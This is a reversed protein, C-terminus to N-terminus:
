PSEERPLAERPQGEPPMEERLLSLLGVLGTVNHQVYDIRVDSRDARSRFGGMARAPNPLYFSNAPRYQQNLQFKVSALTVRRILELQEADKADRAMRWAATLGESRAGAPTVPPLSGPSAPGGVMDPPAGEEARLQSLYSVRVLEYVYDKLRADKVFPYLEALGQTLWADPPVYLEIGGWRWRKLALYEAAKKATELVEPQPSLQHLRVLGLLAEGPYYISKEASIKMGPKWAFWSELYGDERQQSRIFRAMAAMLATDKGDHLAKEREVLALLGLGVAGLKAQKGELLYVRLAGEAESGEVPRSQQRLWETAREAAELFTPDPIVRYIQYLSYTTGAHRLLNYDKDCTDREAFYTYCYRGDELVMRSLYAGARQLSQELVTPTIAQKMLVNGRYLPLAGPEDESGEVFAVSRFRTLVAGEGAAEKVYEIGDRVKWDLHVQTSPLIWASGEPAHAALGDVGPNMLRWLITPDSSPLARAPGALDIQIRADPLREFAGPLSKLVVALGRTAHTLAEGLTVEPQQASPAWHAQPPMGAKKLGGHSSGVPVMGVGHLTVFVPQNVRIAPPEPLPTPVPTPSSPESVAHELPATAPASPVPTVTPAAPTPAVVPPSVSQDPAVLSEALAQEAVAEAELAQALAAENLSRRVFALSASMEAESLPAPEEVWQMVKVAVLIGSLVAVVAMVSVVRRVM